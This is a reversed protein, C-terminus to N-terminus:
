PCLAVIHLLENPLKLRKKRFTAGDPASHEVLRDVLRDEGHSIMSCMM